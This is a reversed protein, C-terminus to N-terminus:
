RRQGIVACGSPAYAPRLLGSVICVGRGVTAEFASGVFPVEINPSVGNPVNECANETAYRFAAKLFLEGIKQGRKQEAVKFTCLKLSRGELSEGDDNIIEDFQIAYICVAEVVGNESRAVWAKRGTQAKERFWRDFSRQPTDYSARLSDFFTGSLQTTLQFMPLDEVNPLQVESPEHLRKLWDDATQITYVQNALGLVRAKTHIERDETVLAHIASCELAYLIDNDCADNPSTSTSNAPSVPAGELRTYQRLRELTRTRRGVDKDREIDIASAPHYLLQHGGVSALRVFNALSPQLILMSDQLPILINTDLLFRLREGM